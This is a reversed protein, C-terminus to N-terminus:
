LIGIIVNQILRGVASRHWVSIGEKRKIVDSIVIALMVSCSGVVEAGLCILPLLCLEYRDYGESVQNHIVTLIGFSIIPHLCIFAGFLIQLSFILKYDRGLQIRWYFLKRRLSKPPKQRLLQATFPDM